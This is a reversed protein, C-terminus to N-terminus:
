DDGKDGRGKGKGNEPGEDLDEEPATTTPPITTSPPSTVAAPETTPTPVDIGGGGQSAFVVVILAIAALAFWLARTASAAARDDLPELDSPPQPELLAPMIATDGGVAIVATPDDGVVREDGLVVYGGDDSWEGADYVQVSPDEVLKAVDADYRSRDAPGSGGYVKVVVPRQLVRDLGQYVESTGDSTQHRVLEYREGLVSGVHHAGTAPTM